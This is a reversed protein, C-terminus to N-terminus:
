SRENVWEVAEAFNMFTNDVQLMPMTTLGMEIIKDIDSFVEYEINAQELKKELVNCRPCGSSYLTIM